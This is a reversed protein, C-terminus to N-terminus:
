TVRQTSSDYGCSTAPVCKGSVHSDGSSRNRAVVNSVHKIWDDINCSEVHKKTHVQVNAVIGHTITNSKGGISRRRGIGQQAVIM